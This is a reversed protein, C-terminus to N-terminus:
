FHLISECYTADNSSSYNQTSSQSGCDARGKMAWGLTVDRGDPSLSYTIGRYEMYWSGSGAARISDHVLTGGTTVQQLSTHGAEDVYAPYGPEAKCQGVAYLGSAPYDSSKGLCLWDGGAASQYPPAGNLTAFLTIAKEASSVGARIRTNEARTAVGSYTIISISALIAIVVIVILLEVLTFGNQKHNM